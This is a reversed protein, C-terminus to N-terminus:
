NPTPREVRDIVLVEVSTREDDVRFGLQNALAAKLPPGAEADPAPLAESFQLEIDFAQTLGTQDIVPRGLERALMQVISGITTGGASLRWDAGRILRTHDFVPMMVSACPLRDANPKRTPDRPLPDGRKQAARYADCDLVPTTLGPGLRGDRALRLVYAPVDRMETHMVLKFREALLAQAMERIEDVTAAATARAEIDYFETTIWEPGEIQGPSSHGPYVTRIIGHLTAFRSRWVGGPQVQGLVPSFVGSRPDPSPKVSAVEFVRSTQQAALPLAAVVLGAALLGFRTM